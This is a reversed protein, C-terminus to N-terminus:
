LFETQIWSEFVELPILPQDSIVKVIIPKLNFLILVSLQKTLKEEYLEFEVNYAFDPWTFDLARLALRISNITTDHGSLLCITSEDESKLLLLLEQFLAASALKM